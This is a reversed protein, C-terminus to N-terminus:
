ADCDNRLQIHDVNHVQHPLDSIFGVTDSLLV